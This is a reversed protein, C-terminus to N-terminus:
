EQSVRKSMIVLSGSGEARYDVADMLSEIIVLGLADEPHTEGVLRPTAARGRATLRLEDQAAECAIEIQDGPVAQRICITCAESISLRVDEIDELSFNLRNAVAAVALRAVAVWEAKAPIRLEVSDGPEARPMPANV